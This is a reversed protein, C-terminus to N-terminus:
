LAKQAPVSYPPQGADTHASEFPNQSVTSTLLDLLTEGSIISVSPDIQAATRSARGTKGTHVFLGKCRHQVVLTSFQKVHSPNIHGTYRKAQIIHLENNIWVQGDIGGDGTYRHNRKVPYGRLEFAELIMEEFTFPNIKRLYAFQQSPRTITALTAIANRAQAEKRRHSPKRSRRFLFSRKPTATSILPTRTTSRSFKSAKQTKSFLSLRRRVNRKRRILLYLFPTLQRHLLIFLLAILFILESPTFFSM